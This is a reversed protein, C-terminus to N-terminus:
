RGNVWCWLSVGRLRSGVHSILAQRFGEKKNIAFLVSRFQVTYTLLLCFNTTSFFDLTSSMELNESILSHKTLKWHLGM